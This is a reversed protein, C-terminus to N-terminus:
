RGDKCAPREGPPGLLSQDPAHAVLLQLSDRWGALSEVGNAVNMGERELLTDGARLLAIARTYDAIAADHRRQLEAISGRLRFAVASAPHVRLLEDVTAAADICRFAALQDIARRRLHEARTRTSSTDRITLTVCEPQHRVFPVAPQTVARLEACVKHPGDPLGAVIPALNVHIRAHVSPPVYAPPADSDADLPTPPPLTPMAAALEIVSGAPAGSGDVITTEAAVLRRTGDPRELWTEVWRPGARYFEVIAPGDYTLYADFGVPEDRFVPCTGDPGGPLYVPACGDWLLHGLLFSPHVMGPYRSLHWQIEVDTSGGAPQAQARGAFALLGAAVALALGPRRM